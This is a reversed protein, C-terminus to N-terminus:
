EDDARLTLSSARDVVNGADDTGGANGGRLPAPVQTYRLAASAVTKTGLLGFPIGAITVVACLLVLGGAVHLSRRTKHGVPETDLDRAAGRLSLGDFRFSASAYIELEPDMGNLACVGRLIPTGIVILAALLALRKRSLLFVASPWLLYFQEEIALSWFVGPGHPSPVQFWHTFNALMGLSILFYRSYGSYFFWCLALVVLYVPLIRLARRGYFNVFVRPTGKADLLIGGILLGSLVFFLDVGLWGRSVVFTFVKPLSELVGPATPYGYSFAHHILVSLIAVARVGDLEPIRQGSATAACREPTTRM